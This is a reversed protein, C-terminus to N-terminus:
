EDKDSRCLAHAAETARRLTQQARRYRQEVFAPPLAPHEYPIAGLVDVEFLSAARIGRRSVALRITREMSERAHEWGIDLEDRNWERLVELAM